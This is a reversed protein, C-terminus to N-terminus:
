REIKTLRVRILRDKNKTTNSQILKDFVRIQFIDLTQIAVVEYNPVSTLVYTFYNIIRYYISHNIFSFIRLANFMYTECVYSPLM